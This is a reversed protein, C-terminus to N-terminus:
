LTNIDIAHGNPILNFIDYHNKLFLEQIANHVNRPYIAIDNIYNYLFQHYNDEKSVYGDSINILERMTEIDQSLYKMPKLIPKFQEIGAMQKVRSGKYATVFIFESDLSIATLDRQTNGVLGKINFPAYALLYKLEM